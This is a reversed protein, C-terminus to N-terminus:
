TFLIPNCTTTGLGLCSQALGVDLFEAKFIDDRAGAGLPLGTAPTCRVPTAVRAQALKRFASALVVSKAHPDAHSYVFRGGLQAPVSRFVAELATLPVKARYKNFDDRYSALLDSHIARRQEDDGGAVHAASM